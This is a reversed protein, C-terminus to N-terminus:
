KISAVLSQFIDLARLSALDDDERAQQKSFGRSIAETLDKLAKDPAGNLAFVV